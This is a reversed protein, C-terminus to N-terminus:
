CLGSHVNICWMVFEKVFHDINTTNWPTRTLQEVKFSIQELLRKTGIVENKPSNHVRADEECLESVKKRISKERGILIGMLFLKITRFDCDTSDAQLIEDFTEKILKSDLDDDLYVQYVFHLMTKLSIDMNCETYNFFTAYFFDRKSREENLASCNELFAMNRIKNAKGTSKRLDCEADVLEDVFVSPDDEQTM